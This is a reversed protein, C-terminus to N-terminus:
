KSKEMHQFMEGMDRMGRVCVIDAGGPRGVLQIAVGIDVAAWVRHPQGEANAAVSMRPTGFAQHMLADIEAFSAGRVSVQFGNADNKIIWYAKLAPLPTNTVTHGGYKAVESVIFSSFDGSRSCGSVLAFAFLSLVLFYARMNARCKIAASNKGQYHSLALIKPCGRESGPWRQALSSKCSALNHGIIQATLRVTRWLRRRVQEQLGSIRPVPHQLQMMTRDMGLSRIHFPHGPIYPKMRHLRSRLQHM